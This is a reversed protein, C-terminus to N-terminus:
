DQSPDPWATEATTGFPVFLRAIKPTNHRDYTGLVPCDEDGHHVDKDRVRTRETATAVRRDLECRALYRRMQCQM